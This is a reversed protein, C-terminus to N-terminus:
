RAARREARQIARELRDRKTAHAGAKRCRALAVLPNRPKTVPITLKNM